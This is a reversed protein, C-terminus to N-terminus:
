AERISPRGVGFFDMLERESPLYEGEKIEDRRIMSELEDAVIESLKKTVLPKRKTTLM